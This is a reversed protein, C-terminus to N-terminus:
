DPRKFGDDDRLVSDPDRTNNLRVLERAKSARDIADNADQLGKLAANATGLDIWMQRQAYDVLFRAIGLVASIIGIITTATV